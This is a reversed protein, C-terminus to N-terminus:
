LVIGKIMAPKEPMDTEGLMEKLNGEITVSISTLPTDGPRNEFPDETREGIQDLSLFIFNILMALPINFVGLFDVFAFPVLTGHLFVFIRSYYSYARPLPTNKIRESMGQHNNFETLTQSLKVFRYDSLWGRQYAEQLERGQIMLLYNPPNDKALVEEAEDTTLFPRIDDYTNSTEFFEDQYKNYARRQRLFVRLAHVFAIHRYILRRQWQALEESPKGSEDIGLTLVERGWARSYNVLMGWIKRAEWWRDYANNNKFGLFIALATSLLAVAEFPVTLNPIALEYHLFYVAISLTSFYLLSKWAYFLVQQFSLNRSVIM